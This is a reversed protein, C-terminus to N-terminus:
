LVMVHLILRGLPLTRAPNSSLARLRTFGAMSLPDICAEAGGALMVDADGFQICRMADGIAHAGAACATSPALNPGRLHYEMSLRGAASNTLVESRLAADIKSPRQPGCM